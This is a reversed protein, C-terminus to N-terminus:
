RGYARGRWTAPRGLSQRILAIWQIALLAIVGLPHLLVSWIPARFRIALILRTGVGLALAVVALWTPSEILLFIPLVQGVGLLITWVPLALPRAMGETANKLLGELLASTDVYMRCRAIRSADFIETMLGSARFARPLMIGDHMTRSVATHGGAERYATRSVAIMQGCGAGLAPSVSRRMVAIPLFSLLLFHILPLLLGDAFGSTLEQPFGSGLGVSKHQMLTAIRNLADPALQVDADLFLILEHHALKAGAACAHQKGTWGPPLIPTDAVRLREDQIATLIARTGDTSQDDMVVLDVDVNKSALVAICATGINTEENRAPIVVSIAFRAISEPPTRFLLLNWLALLAPGVALFLALLGLSM